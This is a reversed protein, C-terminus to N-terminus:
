CDKATTKKDDRKKLSGFSFQPPQGWNGHEAIGAEASLRVEGAGM